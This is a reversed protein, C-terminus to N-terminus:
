KSAYLEIWHLTNEDLKNIYKDTFLDFIKTIEDETVYYTKDSIDVVKFTNEDIGEYELKDVLEVNYGSKSISYILNAGITAGGSAHVYFCGNELLTLNNRAWFGDDEKGIFISVAENNQTNIGYVGVLGEKDNKIVMESIGNNDFDVYAYSFTGNLLGDNHATYSIGISPTVEIDGGQVFKKYKEIIKNYAIEYSKKEQTINKNTNNENNSNTKSTNFNYNGGITINEERCGTLMFLATALVITIVIMSTNKKM